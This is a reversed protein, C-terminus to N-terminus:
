GYSAALKRCGARLGQVQDAIWSSPKRQPKAAGYSDGGGGGPPLFDVTLQQQVAWALLHSMHEVRPGFLEAGLLRGTHRDGYIRILGQNIGQVRARGQDAYDVEGAMAECNGLGSHGTGVIGIQPDTFAIALPTRRQAARVDPFRAANGGAIRGDDSAEHLLPHLESVDGAVFVASDGLQLTDADINYRGGEGAVIGMTELGLKGLNSRRGAAMLVREFTEARKKGTSDEFSIQVGDDARVV